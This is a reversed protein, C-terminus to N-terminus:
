GDSIEQVPSWDLNVLRPKDAAYVVRYMGINPYKKNWRKLQAEANPISRFNWASSLSSTIAYDNGMKRLYWRRDTLEIMVVYLSM